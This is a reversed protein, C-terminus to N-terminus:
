PRCGLCTQSDESSNMSHSGSQRVFPNSADHWIWIAKAVCSHGSVPRRSRKVNRSREWCRGPHNRARDLWLSGWFKENCLITELKLTGQISRLCKSSTACTSGIYWKLRSSHDVEVYMEDSATLCPPLLRSWQVSRLQRVDHDFTTFEKPRMLYISRAVATFNRRRRYVARIYKFCPKM